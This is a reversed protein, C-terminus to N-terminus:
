GTDFVGGGRSSGKSSQGNLQINGVGHEVEDGAGSGTITCTMGSRAGSILIDAEARDMTSQVFYENWTFISKETHAAGAIVFKSMHRM